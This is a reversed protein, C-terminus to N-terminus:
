PELSRGLHVQQGKLEITIGSVTLYVEDAAAATHQNLIGMMDRYLRSVHDMPVLGCGLENTVIIATKGQCVQIKEILGEIERVAGEVITRDDDNRHDYLYNSFYITLCDLLIVDSEILVRDISSLLQRPIEYTMWTEPRRAQHLAIREAMEEDSVEATAVYAHRGPLAKAYREAFASKGSRDGGTVVILKSKKM